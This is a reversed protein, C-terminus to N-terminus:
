ELYHNLGREAARQKKPCASRSIHGPVADPTDCITRPTDLIMDGWGAPFRVILVSHRQGKGRPIRKVFWFPSRRSSMARIRLDKKVDNVVPIAIPYCAYHGM